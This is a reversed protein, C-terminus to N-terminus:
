IRYLEPTSVIHGCRHLQGLFVSIRFNKLFYLYFLMARFAFIVSGIRKELRNLDIYTNGYKLSFFEKNQEHQNTNLKPITVIHGSRLLQELFM